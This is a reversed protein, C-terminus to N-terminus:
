QKNRDQGDKEQAVAVMDRIDEDIQEKGPLPAGGHTGCCDAYTNDIVRM